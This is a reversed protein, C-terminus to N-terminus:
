FKDKYFEKKMDQMTKRIENMQENTNEQFENMCKNMLQKSGNIKNIIIILNDYNKQIIQSKMWKVIM